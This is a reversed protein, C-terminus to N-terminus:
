EGTIKFQSIEQKIFARNYNLIDLLRKFVDEESPYMIGEIGKVVLSQYRGGIASIVLALRARRSTINQLDLLFKVNKYWGYIDTFDGSGGKEFLIPLKIKTTRTNGWSEASDYARSQNVMSEGNSNKTQNNGFIQEIGMNQSLRAIQANAGEDNGELNNIRAWINKNERIRKEVKENWLQLVQRELEDAEAMKQALSRILGRNMENNSFEARIHELTNKSTESLRYREGGSVIEVGNENEIAEEGTEIGEMGTEIIGGMETIGEQSKKSDVRRGKVGGDKDIDTSPFSGGEQNEKRQLFKEGDFIFKGYGKGDTYYFEAMVRKSEENMTGFVGNQIGEANYRFLEESQNEAFRERAEDLDFLFIEGKEEEFKTLSNIPILLTEGYQDEIFTIKFMEGVKLERLKEILDERKMQYYGTIGHKKGLWKLYDITATEMRICRKVIGTM